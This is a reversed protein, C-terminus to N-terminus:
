ERTEGFSFIWTLSLGERKEVLLWERIWLSEVGQFWGLDVDEKGDWFREGPSRGFGGSLTEDMAWEDVVSTRLTIKRFYFDLDYM